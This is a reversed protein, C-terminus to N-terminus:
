KDMIQNFDIQVIKGHEDDVYSKMYYSNEMVRELKDADELTCYIGDVNVKIGTEEATKMESLVWSIMNNKLELSEEEM